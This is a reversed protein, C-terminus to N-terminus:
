MFLKDWLTNNEMFEKFDTEMENAADAPSKGAKFVFHYHFFAATIREQRWLYVLLLNLGVSLGLLIKMEM